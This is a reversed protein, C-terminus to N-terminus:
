RTSGFSAASRSTTLGQPDTGNQLVPRAHELPDFHLPATDAPILPGHLEIEFGTKTRRAVVKSLAQQVFILRRQRLEPDEPPEATLIQQARQLLEDRDSTQGNGQGALLRQSLEVQRELRAIEADIHEVSEQLYRPNLNQSNAGDELWGRVIEERQRQLDTVRAQFSRQQATSLIGTPTPEADTRARSQYERQLDPDECLRLLEAVVLADVQKHPLAFRRCEPLPCRKEHTYSNRHCRLRVPRGDDDRHHQCADHLFEIRNLLFHGLPNSRQRGKVAAMLAQNLEFTEVGVPDVLEIKELPYVTGEYTVHTMGTVYLPNKLMTRVRERSITFGLKETLFDALGRISTGGDARLRSYMTAAQLVYPWQEPDQELYMQANRRFGIPKLGPYGRGEELWRAKIANHTRAKIAGREFEGIVGLTGVMLRDGQNNWDVKRGLSCLYLDTDTDRLFKYFSHASHLERAIRDPERYAVWRLGRAAICDRIFTFDVRSDYDSGGSTRMAVVACAPSLGHGAALALGNHIQGLATEGKQVDLSSLRAGIVGDGNENMEWILLLSGRHSIEQPDGYRERLERTAEIEFGVDVRKRRGGTGPRAAASVIDAWRPLPLLLRPQGKGVLIEVLGSVTLARADDDRTPKTFRPKTAM